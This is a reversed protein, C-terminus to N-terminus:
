YGAKAMLAEIDELPMDYDSWDLNAGDVADLKGAWSLDIGADGRETIGIKM